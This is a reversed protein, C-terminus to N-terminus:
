RGENRPVDRRPGEGGAGQDHGRGEGRGNAHAAPPQPARNPMAQHAQPTQQQPARNPVAHPATQNRPAEAGDRQPSSRDGRGQSRAGPSRNLDGRIRQAQYHERVVPDHPQYQYSRSHFDRQQDARPYRDGSYQRQYVPLPARAPVSRRDWRDWGRHRDEWVRGWHEGWHPPADAHWGRFYIPPRRYYRIPVRLVYLPVSNPSVVQWPGNYWTSAYWNVGDYLWYMGDYFFYNADLQPAYYVPYGPVPVLQPYGPLNIGISLGPVSAGISVQADAASISAAAIALIVFLKRM